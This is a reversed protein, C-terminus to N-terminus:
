LKWGAFPLCKIVGLSPDIALLALATQVPENFSPLPVIEVAVPTSLLTFARGRAGSGLFHNGRGM